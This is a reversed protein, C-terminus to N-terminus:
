AGAKKIDDKHKSFKAYAKQMADAMSAAKGEWTHTKEGLKMLVKWVGDRVPLAKFSPKVPAPTAEVQKIEVAPAQEPAEGNLADDALALYDKIAGRSSGLERSIRSQTIVANDDAKLQEKVWAHIKEMAERRAIESHGDLKKIGALRSVAKEPAPAAEEDYEIHFKKYGIQTDTDEHGLMEQWFLDESRKTKKRWEAYHLDHVARAWIDRSDKFVFSQDGLVRKALRNLNGACRSNIRANRTVEPLSDFEALEQIEPMARLEAWADVVLKADVLTYITAADSYDAGGRKKAQGTFKVQHDSVREIEGQYLVEIQRRGTALALGLALQNYNFVSEGGSVRSKKTLLDYITSILWNYSITVQTSIKQYRKEAQEDELNEKTASPMTLHRMIEHDLKMAKIDAHAADDGAKKARNLIAAWAERLPTISKGLLAQLDDAYEPYRAALTAVQKDLSHHVWNQETVARRLQTLYKRYTSPAIKDTEKRRKDDHLQNKIKEALRTIAKTKESRSLSEDGDIVKVGDILDKTIQHLDVKSSRKATDTM